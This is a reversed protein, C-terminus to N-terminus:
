QYLYLITHTDFQADFVFFRAVGAHTKEAFCITKCVRKM